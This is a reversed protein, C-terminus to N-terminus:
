GADYRSRLQGCGAQIDAGRRLRVTAVIHYRELKARFAAVQERSPTRLCRDGGPNAPILNVQCRTDKLLRALEEAQEVADNIGAFLVYEFSVRRGTKAMYEQVAAMLEEVPYKRNLPVLKDRLSNDPANLSVALGVQLRERSLRRIQPVLGATSITFRRAGLGFGRPSNLTRIAQWVSAYNALPEGMGMFVINDVSPRGSERGGRGERLCRAFYLVQDIIEGATLNREWGQQGTACFLCGIPCGVQTSVCVTCRRETRGFYLLVSEITKGDSLRFLVKRTQGDKSSIEKLPSLNSFQYRREVAERFPRPLDAMEAFSAASTRYLWRELQRARFVPEGLSLVLQEMKDLSLDTISYGQDKENSLLCPKAMELPCTYCMKSIVKGMLKGSILM